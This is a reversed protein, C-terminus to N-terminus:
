NISTVSMIPITVDSEPDMLAHVDASSIGITTFVPMTKATVNMCVVHYAVRVMRRVMIVKPGINKDIFFVQLFRLYFVVLAVCYTMRAVSFHSDPVTYRLIVSLILTSYAVLDFRNWSSRLYNSTTSYAQLPRFTIKVLPLSGYILHICEFALVVRM